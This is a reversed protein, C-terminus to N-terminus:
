GLPPPQSAATAVGSAPAKLQQVVLRLDVSV